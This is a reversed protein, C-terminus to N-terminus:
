PITHLGTVNWEAEVNHLARILACIRLVYCRITAVAAIGLLVMTTLAFAGALSTLGFGLLTTSTLFSAFMTAWLAYVVIASLPITRTNEM